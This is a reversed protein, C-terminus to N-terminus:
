RPVRRPPHDRGASRRGRRAAANAFNDPRANAARTPCARTTTASCARGRRLRHDRRGRGLEALRVAALDSASRPVTSRRTSSTARRAAPAACWRRHPRGRGRYRAVTRRARRRRTTPTPTCPSCACLPRVDALLSGLAVDSTPRRARCAACPELPSSPRVRGDGRGRLGPALRLGRRAAGPGRRPRQRHARRRGAAARRGTPRYFYRGGRRVALVTTARSSTSSCSARADRRRGRSGAAVPVRVVVEDTEGLAISLIPHIDEHQEILWVM